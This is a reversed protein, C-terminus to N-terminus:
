DDGAPPFAPPDEPSTDAPGDPSAAPPSESQSSGSAEGVQMQALLRNRMAAFERETIQGSARLDRLDQFTFQQPHQERNTWRRVAVAAIIGVLVAVAAFALWEFPPFLDGM